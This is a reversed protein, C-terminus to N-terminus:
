EPTAHEDDAPTQGEEARALFTSLRVGLAICLRELMDVTPSFKDNELDSLYTRDMKAKAALQEQTL